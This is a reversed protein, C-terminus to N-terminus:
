GDMDSVFFRARGGDYDFIRGDLAFTFPVMALEMIEHRTQAPHVTQLVLEHGSDQAAPAFAEVVDDAIRALDV